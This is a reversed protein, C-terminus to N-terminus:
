SLSYSFKTLLYGGILSTFVPEFCYCDSMNNFFGLFFGTSADSDGPKRVSSARANARGGRAVGEAADRAREILLPM